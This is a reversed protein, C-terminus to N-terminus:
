ASGKWPDVIALETDAFDEVDRTVLVAGRSRAIAAIQADAHAITKGARRRAAAIAAFEHAASSDFALVRDRFDEAFMADVASQLESRRRGRERLAVGFLIEAQCITTTFLTSAPQSSVWKVVGPAPKPRMLESVVHTDLVFM